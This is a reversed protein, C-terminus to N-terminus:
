DSKGGYRFGKIFSTLRSGKKFTLGRRKTPEIYKVYWKFRYKTTGMDRVKYGGIVKRPNKIKVM